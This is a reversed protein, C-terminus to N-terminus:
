KYVAKASRLWVGGQRGQGGQGNAQAYTVAFALVHCFCVVAPSDSRKDRLEASQGGWDPVGDGPPPPSPTSFSPM